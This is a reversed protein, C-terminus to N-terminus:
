PNKECVNNVTCIFPPPCCSNGCCTHPRPCCFTGFCCKQGPPCSKQPDGPCNERNGRQAWGFPALVVAALAAAILRIARGRSMPTALIRCIRDFLHPMDLRRPQRSDKMPWRSSKIRDKQSM